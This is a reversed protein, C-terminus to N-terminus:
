PEILEPNSERTVGNKKKRWDGKSRGMPARRRETASSGKGIRLCAANASFFAHERGAGSFGGFLLLFAALGEPGQCVYRCCSPASLLNPLFSLCHSRAKFPLIYVQVKTAMVSAQAASMAGSLCSSTSEIEVPEPNLDKARVFEGSELRQIRPLTTRHRIGLESCVFM